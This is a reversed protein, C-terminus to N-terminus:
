PAQSDAQESDEQKSKKAYSVILLASHYIDTQRERGISTFRLSLIKCPGIAQLLSSISTAICGLDRSEFSYCKKM